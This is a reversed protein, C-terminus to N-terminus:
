KILWVKNMLQKLTTCGFNVRIIDDKIVYDQFSHELLYDVFFLFFVQLSCNGKEKGVGALSLKPTSLQAIVSNM